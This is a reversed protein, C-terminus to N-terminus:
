RLRSAAFDWNVHHWFAQLAAEPAGPHDLWYAHEWLDCALLVRDSGSDPSVGAATALVALPGDARQLLWVWGPGSLRAAAQAFAAQLAEVSGFHQTIAAGLRGGPVGGGRARLGQWYLDHARIEVLQRYLQGQVRELLTELPLDQLPTGALAANVAEVQQRHLALHQQLAAASVDPLLAATSYPLEPLPLPM